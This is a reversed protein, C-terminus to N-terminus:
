EEAVVDKRGVLKSYRLIQADSPKDVNRGCNMKLAIAAVFEQEEDTLPTGVLEGAAKKQNAETKKNLADVAKRRAKDGEDQLQQIGKAEPEPKETPDELIALDTSECEPEKNKCTIKGAEINEPKANSAFEFGCTNCKVRPM